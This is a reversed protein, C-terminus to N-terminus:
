DAASLVKELLGPDRHQDVTTVCLLTRGGEPDLKRSMQLSKSTTFDVMASVVNLIVTERPEMYRQYMRTITGEIDEHQGALAVRTMGPLTLDDQDRRYVTLELPKDVVDKNDGALVATCRQVEAAIEGLALRKEPFGECGKIIAHEDKVDDCSRLMLLLPVRTQIGQLFRFLLFFLMPCSPCPASLCPRQEQARMGVEGRPLDVGSLAEIVSTKGHSQDGVAVISTVNIDHEAVALKRLQDNLQLLPRIREKALESLAM